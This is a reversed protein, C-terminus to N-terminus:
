RYYYMELASFSFGEEIIFSLSLYLPTAGVVSLDNVTGYVSLEGIDGGSFFIPSVIFSDTTFAIKGSIPLVAADLQENLIDNGVMDLIEDILKRTNEGVMVM